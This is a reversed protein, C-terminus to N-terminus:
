SIPNMSTLFINALHPACSTDMPIGVIQRYARNKHTIFSNDIIFYVAEILEDVSFSIDTSKKSRANSLYTNNYSCIVFKKDKNLFVGKIYENMIRKLKDHPISSYLTSFDFTSVSKRGGIRRNGNLSDMLKVVENRNDIIFFDNYEKYKNAYKSSNKTCKLLSKLCKGINLSLLSTSSQVASTIQRFATPTKHM